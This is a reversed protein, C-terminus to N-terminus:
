DYAFMKLIRYIMYDKNKFWRVTQILERIRSHLWEAYWTSHRSLFYNVLSELHLNTTKVMAQIDKHNIKEAKNIWKQIRKEWDEISLHADFLKFLEQLLDIWKVLIEAEDFTKLINYRNKQYPNRDEKRKRIQYLVMTYIEKKTEQLFWYRKPKYHEKEGKLLNKNKEKIRLREATERQKEKRQLQLRINQIDGIMEKMYHFRDTVHKANSFLQNSISEVATWMDTSSEIVGKLKQESIGEKIKPVIDESKTWPLIAVIWKGDRDPNSLITYVQWALDVEDICARKWMNKELVIGREAINDYM